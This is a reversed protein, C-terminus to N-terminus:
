ESARTFQLPGPVQSIDIEAPAIERVPRLRRRRGPDPRHHDAPRLLEREDARPRQDARRDPDLRDGHRLHTGVGGFLSTGGIVVAAIVNLEYGMGAVAESSNLRASLMFGALGALFGIIVYVSLLVRECMSAPCARRRATAASRMSRAAMARIACCSSPSRGRHRPLHHGPGAGPRDPGPGVLSLGGRLRQDTGGGLDDAGPRPVGFPRWADGRLAAGQAHSPSGQLFGGSCGSRLRGSCRRSGAM